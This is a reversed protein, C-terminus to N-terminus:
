PLHHTSYQSIPLNEHTTSPFTTYFRGRLTLLSADRCSFPMAISHHTPLTGACFHCLPIQTPDSQNHGPVVNNDLSTSITTIRACFHGIPITQNNSSFPLDNQYNGHLFPQSIAPPSCFLFRRPPTPLQHQGGSNTPCPLLPIFTSTTMTSLVTTLSLFPLLTGNFCFNVLAAKSM